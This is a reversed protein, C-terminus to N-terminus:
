GYPPTQIGQLAQGILYDLEKFKFPKELFGHVGDRMARDVVAPDPDGSTLIIGPSYSVAQSLAMIREILQPGTVRPMQTDTIVVHPRHVRVKQFGDEGDVAEHVEHGVDTLYAAIVGRVAREDDVVLVRTREGTIM